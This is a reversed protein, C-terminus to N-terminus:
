ACGEVDNGIGTKVAAQEAMDAALAGLSVMLGRKLEAADVGEAERCHECVLLAILGGVKGCKRVPKNIEYEALPKMVRGCGCTMLKVAEESRSM